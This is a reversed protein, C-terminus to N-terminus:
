AQETRPARLTARQVHERVYALHGWMAARAAEADRARIAALVARHQGESAEILRPQMSLQMTQIVPERVAEVIAQLLSHRAILAIAHHFGLDAEIRRPGGQRSDALAQIWEALRAADAETAREAALAALEPEILIRVDCLELLSVRRLQLLLSLSEAVARGSPTDVFAGRGAVVRVLGKHTLVRLAERLISRSVNLQAALVREPPLLDGPELKREVILRELRRVVADTAGLRDVSGYLEIVPAANGM